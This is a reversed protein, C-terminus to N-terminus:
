RNACHLSFENHQMKESVSGISKHRTNGEVFLLFICGNIGEHRIRVGVARHLQFLQIVNSEHQINKDSIHFSSPLKIASTIPLLCTDSM